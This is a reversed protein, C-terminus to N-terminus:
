KANVKTEMGSAKTLEICATEAQKRTSYVKAGEKRSPITFGDPFPHEAFFMPTVFRETVLIFKM